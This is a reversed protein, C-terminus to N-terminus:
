TRPEVGGEQRSADARNQFDGLLTVRTGLCWDAGRCARSDHVCTPSCLTLVLISAHRGDAPPRQHVGAHLPLSQWQYSLCSLKSEIGLDARDKQIAKSLKIPTHRLKMMQLIHLMPSYDDAGSSNVELGCGHLCQLDRM